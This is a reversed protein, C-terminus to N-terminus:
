DGRQQTIREENEKNSKVYSLDPFLDKLLKATKETNDNENMNHVLIQDDKDLNLSVTYKKNSDTPNM